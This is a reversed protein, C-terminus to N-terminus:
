IECGSQRRSVNKPQLPHEDLLSRFWVLEEGGRGQSRNSPGSIPMIFALAATPAETYAHWIYQKYDPSFAMIDHSSRTSQFCVNWVM